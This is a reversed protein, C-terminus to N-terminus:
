TSPVVAILNLLTLAAVVLTLGTGNVHDTIAASEDLEPCESMFSDVSSHAQDQMFYHKPQM